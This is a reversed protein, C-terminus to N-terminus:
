LQCGGPYSWWGSLSDGHGPDPDTGSTEQPKRLNLHPLPVQDESVQDEDSGSSTELLLCLIRFFSGEPIRIQEGLHSRLLRIREPATGEDAPAVMDGQPFLCLIGAKTFEGVGPSVMETCRVKQLIRWFTWFSGSSGPRIRLAEPDQDSEPLFLM